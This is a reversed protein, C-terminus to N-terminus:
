KRSEFLAYQNMLYELGAAREEPRFDRLLMNSLQNGFESDFAIGLDEFISEILMPDIEMDTNEILTKVINPRGQFLTEAEEQPSPEPFATIQSAEMVRRQEPVVTESILRSFDDGSMGEPIEPIELPEPASAMVQPQSDSPPVEPSRRGRVADWLSGDGVPKEEEGTDRNVTFSAGDINLIIVDVGDNAPDNFFREATEEAKDEPITFTPTDGVSPLETTTIDGEVPSSNGSDEIDDPSVGLIMALTGDNFGQDLGFVRTGLREALSKTNPGAPIGHNIIAELRAPGSAPIGNRFFEIEENLAAKETPTMDPDASAQELLRNLEAEQWDKGYDSNALDIYNNVDGVSLPSVTSFDYTVGGENTGRASVPLNMSGLIQDGTMGGVIQASYVQEQLAAETDIGLWAGLGNKRSTIPDVDNPEAIAVPLIKNLVESMSSGGAYEENIEFMNNLATASINQGNTRSYVDLLGAPDMELLGLVREESAGARILGRAAQEYGTRAEQVQAQRQLGQERLYLRDQEVRDRVFSRRERTYDALNSATKSLISM